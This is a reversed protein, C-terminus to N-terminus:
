PQKADTSDSNDRRVYSENSNEPNEAHPRLSVSVEDGAEINVELICLAFERLYNDPDFDLRAIHTAARLSSTKRHVGPVCSVRARTRDVSTRTGGGGKRAADESRKKDRGDNDDIETWQSSEARRTM